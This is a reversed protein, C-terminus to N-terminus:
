KQYRMWYWFVLMMLAVFLFVLWDSWKAQVKSTPNLPVREAKELYHHLWTEFTMPARTDDLLPLIGLHDARCDKWIHGAQPGDVILLLQSGCGLDSIPVSGKTIEPKWYHEFLQQEKQPDQTEELSELFEKPLNWAAVHPFPGKPHVESTDWCRAELWGLPFIEYSPGHSGNGINTLFDRYAKPLTIQFRREFERVEVDSLTPRLVFCNGPDNFHRVHAYKEALSKFRARIVDHDM